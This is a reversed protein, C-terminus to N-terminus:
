IQSLDAGLLGVRIGEDKLTRTASNNVILLVIIGFYPILAGIGALVGTSTGSCTIALLFVFVAGVIWLVFLGYGLLERTAMPGASGVAIAMLQLFLCVLVGKQYMAVRKIKERDDSKVSVHKKREGWAQPREREGTEASRMSAQGNAEIAIKKNCKRCVVTRGGFEDKVRYQKDCSPCTFAIAM